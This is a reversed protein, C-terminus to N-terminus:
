TQVAPKSSPTHVNEVFNKWLILIREETEPIKEPFFDEGVFVVGTVDWNETGFGFGNSLGIGNFRMDPLLHACQRSLFVGFLTGEPIENPVGAYEETDGHLCAYCCVFSRNEMSVGRLLETHKEHKFVSVAFLPSSHTELLM